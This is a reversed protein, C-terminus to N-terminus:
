SLRQLSDFLPKDNLYCLESILLPDSLYPNVPFNLIFSMETIIKLFWITNQSTKQLTRHDNRNRIFTMIQYKIKLFSIWKETLNQTLSRLVLIFMVLFNSPMDYDMIAYRSIWSPMGQFGHHSVKFDMIAYRSTWSPM